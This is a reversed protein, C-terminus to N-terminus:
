GSGESGGASLNSVHLGAEGRAVRDPSGNVFFSPCLSESVRCEGGLSSDDGGM